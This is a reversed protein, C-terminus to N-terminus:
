ETAAPPRSITLRLLPLFASWAVNDGLGLRANRASIVVVYSWDGSADHFAGVAYKDRTHLNDTSTTTGSKGLHMDANPTARDLGGLTGGDRVPTSLVEHVFRAVRPSFDQRLDFEAGYRALPRWNLEGGTRFARIISPQRAVAARGAAGRAVAQMMAALDSPRGTALGTSIAVRPATGSPLSLRYRSAMERLEPEPVARARWILPLILSQGFVSRAAHWAQPQTCPLGADGTANGIAAGPLRENCYTTDPSDTRGFLVALMVKGVSGVQRGARNLTFRGDEDRESLAGNFLPEQSNSFLRVIRGEQMLAITVDAGGRQGAEDLLPAALRGRLRREVQRLQTQVQRRFQHNRSIDVTLRVGTVNSLGERGFHNLLEGQATTMEPSALVAARREPNAAIRFRQSPALRSADLGELQPRPAPLTRLREIAAQARPDAPYAQRLGITAREVLDRWREDRAALGAPDDDPAIIIPRWFAAALIAQQALDLEQPPVGWLVHSAM